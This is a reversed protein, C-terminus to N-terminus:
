ESALILVSRLPDMNRIKSSITEKLDKESDSEIKAVIDYQGITKQVEKVDDMKSLEEIVGDEKGMECSILLYAKPM